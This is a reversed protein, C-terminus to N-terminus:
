FVFPRPSHMALVDASEFWKLMEPVVGEGGPSGKYYQQNFKVLQGM